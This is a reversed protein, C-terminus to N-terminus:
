LIESKRQQIYDVNDLFTSLISNKCVSSISIWATFTIFFNYKILKRTFGRPISWNRSGCPLMEHAGYVKVLIRKIEHSLHVKLNKGNKQYTRLYLHLNPFPAATSACKVLFAFFFDHSLNKEKRSTMAKERLTVNRSPHTKPLVHYFPHTSNHM